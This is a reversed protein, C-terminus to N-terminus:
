NDDGGHDDIVPATLDLEVFGIPESAFGSAVLMRDVAPGAYEVLATQEVIAPDIPLAGLNAFHERCTLTTATAVCTGVGQGGSLELTTADRSLTGTFTVDLLGGVLGIPLDYHLTVLDGLVTWDVHDVTFEAAAELEVAVPVRYRSVYSGSTSPIPSDPVLDLPGAPESSLCGVLACPGLLRLSYQM